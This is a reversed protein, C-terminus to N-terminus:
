LLGGQTLTHHLLDVAGEDPTCPLCFLPVELLATVFDMVAVTQAPDTRRHSIQPYLLRMAESSDPTYLTTSPAHDPFVIAALPARECRYIGSTGAFPLGFAQWVGDVQRIAARDGNLVEAGRHQQWLSAQTSKGVGSKGCFLVAKDRYRIFSAHLVAIGHSLLISEVGIHNFVGGTGSFADTATPLYDITILRKGERRIHAYPAGNPTDAHWSEGAGYCTLGQWVGGAPPLTDCPSLCVTVDAIGEETLFPTMRDAVTLPLPSDLRWRLGAISLYITSVPFDGKRIMTLYGISFATATLGRGKM